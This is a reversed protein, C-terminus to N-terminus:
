GNTLERSFVLAANRDHEVGTQRFIDVGFIKTNTELATYNLRRGQDLVENILARLNRQNESIISAAEPLALFM